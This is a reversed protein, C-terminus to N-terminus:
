FKAPDNRLRMIFGFQEKNRFFLGGRELGGESEFEIAKSIRTEPHSILDIYKKNFFLNDIKYYKFVGSDCSNCKYDEDYFVGNFNHCFPCRLEYLEKDVDNFLYLNLKAPITSLIKSINYTSNESFGAELPSFIVAAGHTAVTYGSHNFPQRCFARTDDKNCFNFINLM